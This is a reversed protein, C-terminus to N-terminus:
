DMSRKQAEDTRKIMQKLIKQPDAKGELRDMKKLLGSIEDWVDDLRGDLWLLETRGKETQCLRRLRRNEPDIIEEILGHRLQWSIHRSATAAPIGTAACIEKSTPNYGQRHLINLTLGILIQGMPHSGYTTTMMHLIRWCLAMRNRMGKQKDPM